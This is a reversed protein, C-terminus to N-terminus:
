RTLNDLDIGYLAANKRIYDARQPDAEGGVAAALMDLYTHWGMMNQSEFRELVPLHLLTLRSGDEGPELNFLVYSEPYASEDEDADFVNWTYALQRNPKWQTVVGRIHGGMLRVRGGQRPEIVGDRGYWGPMRSPETLCAWVEEVPADFRREFGAAPIRLPQGQDSM